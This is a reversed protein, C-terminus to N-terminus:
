QGEGDERGWGYWCSWTEWGKFLREAVKGNAVM